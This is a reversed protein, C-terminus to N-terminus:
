RRLNATNEATKIAALFFEIVMRFLVIGILAPIWGFLLVLVGIVPWTAFGFIIGIIWTIVNLVIMVIFLLKAVSPTVYTTFSMDFLRAFFGKAQANLQNATPASFPTRPDQSYYGSPYDVQGTTPQSPDSPQEPYSAQAPNTPQAPYSPQPPYYQSDTMTLRESTPTQMWQHPTL